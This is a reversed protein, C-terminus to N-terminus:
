WNTNPVRLPISLKPNQSSFNDGMPVGRIESFDPTTASYPYLGNFANESDLSLTNLM